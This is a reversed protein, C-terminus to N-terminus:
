GIIIDSIDLKIAPTVPTCVTSFTVNSFLFPTDKPYECYLYSKSPAVLFPTIYGENSGLIKSNFYGFV